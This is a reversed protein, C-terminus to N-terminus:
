IKSLCERCADEGELPFVKNKGCVTCYFVQNRIKDEAIKQELEWDEDEQFMM